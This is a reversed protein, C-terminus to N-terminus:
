LRQRAELRAGPTAPPLPRLEWLLKASTGDWVRVVGDQGGALIWRGDPTAAACNVFDPTGSFTRTTKGDESLLRLNGDGSSVLAEGTSEIFLISTIEKEAGSVTRRQEGSIFDWFKVLKDAGASALLRGHRKWAVGLVHHTHGEFSRAMRKTGLEWVKIMRDAASSALFRGDASFELALTVDSHANTFEHRLMANETSWLQVQGSRSPEGSGVALLTGDPSFRLTTVRGAFPSDSGGTGLTQELIWDERPDIAMAHGDTGVSVIVGDSRVALALVENTHPCHVESPSPAFVSFTHIVGDVAGNALTAGALDFAVVSLSREALEADQRRDDLARTARTVVLEAARQEAEAGPVAETARQRAELATLLRQELAQKATTAVKVENEATEIAKVAAAINTQATAAKEQLSALQKEATHKAANATQLKPQFEAALRDAAARLSKALARAEALLAEASRLHHSEPFTPSGSHAAIRRLDDALLQTQQAHREAKNARDVTAASEANLAALSAEAAARADRAKEHEPRLESPAKEAAARKEQAAFLAQQKETLTKEGAVRADLTKAAYESETKERQRAKEVAQKHYAVESQAFALDREAQTAAEAARRDGRFEALQKGDQIEWLKTSRNSGSSALRKGDPSLAVSAVVGGHELKRTATGSAADLVHVWGTSTAAVLMEADGAALSTVPGGIRCLERAPPLENPLEEAIDWLLIIGDSSAAAFLRKGSINWALATANAPGKGVALRQGTPTVWLSLDGTESLGALRHGDASFTLRAVAGGDARVRATERGTEANGIWVEGDTAALAFWRGDRSVAATRFAFGEPNPRNWLSARPKRRWLKVARYDGSALRQASPDFALAHVMDRHAPPNAAGVPTAAPDSLTAALRGSPLHYIHIQNGRGCVATQGDRALALALVPDWGEPLPQWAIPPAAGARVEGTAGQDIWLKLLALQEPTLNAAGAKNDKPPMFPKKGHTALHWLLSEEARGAVVAPGSEGGKLIREPTELNLEAKAATQNHCALCSARLVPLLESEFDVKSTREISAVPLGNAEAARAAPLLAGATLLAVVVSRLSDTHTARGHNM